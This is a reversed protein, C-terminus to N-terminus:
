EKHAVSAAPWETIRRRVAQAEQNGITRVPGMTADAEQGVCHRLHSGVTIECHPTSPLHMTVPIRLGIV